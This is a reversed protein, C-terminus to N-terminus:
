IAEMMEPFFARKQNFLESPLGAKRLAKSGARGGAPRPRRQAPGQMASAGEARTHRAELVREDKGRSASRCKRLLVGESLIM